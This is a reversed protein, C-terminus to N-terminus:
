GCTASDTDTKVFSYLHIRVQSAPIQQWLASGAPPCVATRIYTELQLPSLDLKDPIQIYQHLVNGRLKTDIYRWDGTLFRGRSERDAARRHSEDLAMVKSQQQVYAQQKVSIFSQAMEVNVWIVGLGIAIVAAALGVGKKWIASKNSPKATPSKLGANFKAKSHNLLAKRYERAQEFDQELTAADLRKKKGKGPRSGLYDARNQM